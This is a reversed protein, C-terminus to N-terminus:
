ESDGLAYGLGRVTRLLKARPGLKRRIRAVLVDVSARVSDGGDGWLVEILHDREVIRGPRQALLEIIALERATLPLVTGEVRVRRADFDVVIAGITVSRDRVVPGRRGLAKVRARLESIAFPKALYDDAGAELGSVRDRVEGRATLLLIPVHLKSARLRSCLAVGSGDPLMVDLVLVDFAAAVMAADVGACSNAAKVEHDDEKLVRVLLRRTPAHDDAVLIRM